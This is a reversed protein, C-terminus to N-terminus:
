HHLMGLGKISRWKAQSTSRFYVTRAPFAGSFSVDPTRDGDEDIIVQEANEIWELSVCFNKKTVINYPILDIELIESGKTTTEIIINKKNLLEGPKGNKINYINLRFRLTDYTNEVISIKVDKLVSRRKRIKIKTAFENGLTDSEFGITFNQLKSKNGKTYSRMKSDVIAIEEIMTVVPELFVNYDETIKEIFDSVKYEASKYGVMSVRIVDDSLSAPIALSFEGKANSVTGVGKGVVGINVYALPLDTVKEIVRGNVVTSVNTSVSSFLSPSSLLILFFVVLSHLLRM